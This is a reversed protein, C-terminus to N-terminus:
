LEGRFARSQLSAFLEDVGTINAQQAARQRVVTEVRAAFEHQRPLPPVPVQLDRLQGMAIRTRTQGHALASAMALTGPMNLLWCAWAPDARRQDVRFQVCDAKNMAVAMSDPQICARLNPDGLTGILVDGPRCEHKSLSAFHEESILSM